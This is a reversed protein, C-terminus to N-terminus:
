LYINRWKGLLKRLQKYETITHDAYELDKDTATKFYCTTVGLSKAAMLDIARDGIMFVEDPQYGYKDLIYKVSEPDPKRAFGSEKTIIESFCNSVKFKEMHKIASKGRHTIMSNTSGRLVIYRCMDIADSFPQLKEDELRNRESMYKDLLKEDIEYEQNLTLLMHGMSIKMLNMIREETEDVGYERLVKLMAETMIPYSDFLTGDFDWIIHKYM